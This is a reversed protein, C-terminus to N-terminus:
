LTAVGPRGCQAPMALAVGAAYCLLQAVLSPPTRIICWRSCMILWSICRQMWSHRLQWLMQV